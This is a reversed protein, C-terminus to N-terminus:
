RVTSDVIENQQNEKPKVKFDLSSKMLPTNIKLHSNTALKFWKTSLKEAFCDFQFFIKQINQFDLGNYLELM